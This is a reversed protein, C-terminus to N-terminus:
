KENNYYNALAVLTTLAEIEGLKNNVAYALNAAKLLSDRTTSYDSFEHLLLAHNFWAQSQHELDDIKEFYEISLKLKQASLDLLKKNRLIKSQFLLARGVHLPNLQNKAVRILKDTMAMSKDLEGTKYYVASLKLLIILDNPSNQHALTLKALKLEKSPPNSILDYIINNRLHSRLKAIVSAKSQGSIQGEWYSFPGKLIFDLYTLNEHTRIKGTLVFPHIPELNPYVVEIANIFTEADLQKLETFNFGESDELAIAKHSSESKEDLNIFPIYALKIASNSVKQTYNIQVFVTCVVFIVSTLVCVLPWYSSKVNSHRFLRNSPSDPSYQHRLKLTENQVNSAIVETHIKWQYGRKPFTKIAKSGFLRRLISINQFVVQDSVIKDQWVCSLIQEKSLVNDRNELLMTLVRAETHRIELEKGNKSLTLNVSSFEYGNFRYRM